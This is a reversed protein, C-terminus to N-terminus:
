PGAPARDATSREPALQGAVFDLLGAVLVHAGAGVGLTWYRRFWRRAMPDTTATRMTATLLTRREDLPKVRLDYITKAWGPEAFTAFDEASVERYEIVPRWFKGTLGIALERGPREGLLVWGGTAPDAETMERLRLSRPRQPPPEGRILRMALEPLVRAAGLVGVLRRSRGVEILDAEMLAEWGTRCDAEVVRAVTDSVDYVPM